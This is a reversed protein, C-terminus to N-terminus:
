DNVIVEIYRVNQDNGGLNTKDLNEIYRVRSKVFLNPREGATGWREANPTRREANPTKGRGVHSVLMVQM